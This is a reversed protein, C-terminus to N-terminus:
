ARLELLEAKAKARTIAAYAASEPRGTRDMMHLMASLPHGQAVLAIEAADCEIPNNDEIWQTAIRKREDDTM